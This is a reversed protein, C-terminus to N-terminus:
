LNGATLRAEISSLRAELGTVNEILHTHGVMSVPTGRFTLPGGIVCGLANGGFRSFNIYGRDDNIAGALALTNAANIDRFSGDDGINLRGAPISVTGTFSAGDLRAFQAPNLNTAADEVIIRSAVVTDLSAAVQAAWAAVDSWRAAVDQQQTTVLSRLAVTEDRAATATARETAAAAQAAQALAAAAEAADKASTATAAPGFVMDLVSPLSPFLETAGEANTLPFRGDGNPGGTPSGTLWDALQDQQTNWRAMVDVLQGVLQASTTM